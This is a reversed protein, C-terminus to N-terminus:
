VGIGTELNKIITSFSIITYVQLGLFPNCSTSVPFIGWIKLVLYGPKCLLLILSGGQLSLHPGIGLTTGQLMCLLVRALVCAPACM